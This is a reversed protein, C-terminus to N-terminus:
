YPETGVCRYYAYTRPRGRASARSTAKGCLAYGCRKCVMLGQLLHRAGRASLRSRARNEALQEQVAAFLDADVIAPVPISVPDGAAPDRAPRRYRPHEPYGRAPRLRSPDPGARAKGFTAEGKYAPNRLMSWLTTRTWTSKGTRTRVGDRRLRRGVENITCREQGAWMFINEVVHAEELVVEYRAQGGGEHKSIYRYGYPAGCLPTASGRRAAHRKGRRSRELIKAREYEAVMGQVQLLLDEEPSRGLRHDLFVVEVGCRQLEDVLLVQYAYKRALRD